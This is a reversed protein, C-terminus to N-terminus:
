RSVGAARECAEHSRDLESSRAMDILIYDCKNGGWNVNGDRYCIEICDEGLIRYYLVEQPLPTTGPPPPGPRAGPPLEAPTPPPPPPPPAPTPAPAPRAPPATPPAPTPAPTTQVRPPPAVAGVGAKPIGFFTAIRSKILDALLRLTIV